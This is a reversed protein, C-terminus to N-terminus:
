IFLCHILSVSHNYSDWPGNADGCMYNVMEVRSFAVPSQLGPLFVRSCFPLIGLGILTLGLIFIFYPRLFIYTLTGPLDVSASNSERSKLCVWLFVIGSNQLWVVFISIRTFNPSNCPSFFLLFKPMIVSANTFIWIQLCVSISQYVTRKSTKKKIWM